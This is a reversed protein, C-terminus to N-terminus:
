VAYQALELQPQRLQNFLHTSYTQFQLGHEVGVHSAKGHELQILLGIVEITNLLKIKYDIIKNRFQKQYFKM